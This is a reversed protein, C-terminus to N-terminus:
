AATLEEETVLYIADNERVRDGVRIAVRDGSSACEISKNEVEMSDVIQELDTTHGSIHIRSGTVLPGELEIGAVEVRPFYHIVRGIFKEGMINEGRRMM